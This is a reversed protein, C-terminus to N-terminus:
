LHEELGNNFDPNTLLSIIEQPDMNKIDEIMKELREPDQRHDWERMMALPEHYTTTVEAAAVARDPDAAAVAQAPAREPAPKAVPAPVRTAPTMLEDLQVKSDTNAPKADEAAALKTNVDLIHKIKDPSQLLENIINRILKVERNGLRGVATYDQEQLWTKTQDLDLAKIDFSETGNLDTVIGALSVHDIHASLANTSYIKKFAEKYLRKPNLKETRVEREVEDRQEQAEQQVQARDAEHRERATVLESLATRSAPNKRLGNLVTNLVAVERGDFKPM